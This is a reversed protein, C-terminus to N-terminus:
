KWELRDMILLAWQFLSMEKVGQILSKERLNKFIDVESKKACERVVYWAGLLWVAITLVWHIVTQMKTLDKFSSTGYLNFEIGYALLLEFGIFAFIELGYSLFDLGQMFTNKDKTLTLTKAM